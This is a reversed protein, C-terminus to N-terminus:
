LEVTDNHTWASTSGGSSPEPATRARSALRAAFARTANTYKHPGDNGYDDYATPRRLKLATRVDWALAAGIPALADVDVSRPVAAEIQTGEGWENWSTVAVAAPASGLAAEWADAYTAGDRRDRTAVANWPRIKTDDYGPGVCPVFALGLADAERAMAGWHTPESGWSIPAAFYTYAGDFGGAALEKGHSAELWLGIFTADLPTGRVSLDGAPSLLRAWEHPPLHYSDYVYILPLGRAADRYLGAHAGYASALHELDARVSEASRGAYPELHLAVRTAAVADASDGDVALAVSDGDASGSRAASVAADLALALAADTLAGQSDGGSVGARGWWSCVAVRVGAARMDRFQAELTSPDRSSYPGRAPYFPAHIDHPPLWRTAPSPYLAAVSPTWHPLQAHDWHSWAGDTEPTGYWLYFFAHTLPAGELTQLAGLGAAFPVLLAAAVTLAARRM